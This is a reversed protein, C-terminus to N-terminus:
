INNTGGPTTPKGPDTIIPETGGKISNMQNADLSYLNFDAINKVVTTKGFLYNLTKM